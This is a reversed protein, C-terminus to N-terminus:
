SPPEYVRVYFKKRLRATWADYLRDSEEQRLEEEITARVEEFPRLAANKRAEVQVIYFEKGAEVVESYQMPALQLAVQALEPRLSSPELWGMDGGQSAKAGESVEKAIAAFDEGQKLRERIQVAQARKAERDSDTEGQHILILRLKVQEPVRYKEIRADYVARLQGPTIVVRDNVERRRMLTVVLRDKMEAKWDELTMREDALANFFATRDNNFREHIINNVYDEVARDPLNGGESTFEELILAKDILANLANKYAEELKKGLEDGDYADRLQQEIPQYMSLVEGATVVRNNIMAAYSDVPTGRGQSHDALMAGALIM